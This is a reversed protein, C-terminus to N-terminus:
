RVVVEGERLGQTVVADVEDIPGLTVRRTTVGAATRVRVGAGSDDVHIADRPVVIANKVRELEVDIAATLDPLMRPNPTDITVVASFARVRASFSGALGVPSIQGLRGPMALDPYADLRVIVPMGPQLATLDTQNVRARVLVSAQNVVELVPAGPFMEDGEQIDAPGNGRWTLKPVVLGELPSTVTMSHANEVAHTMAAQARDRKIELIRLEAAAAQRKLDFGQKLSALKARAEELDQDNKEALIRSLMENKLVELEFNEVANKARAIEAEDKVRAADQEARKQAIQQVLDEYEAKKDLANKEQNQRDFEVLLDGPKVTAGAAALRTVVMSGQSAGALLPTTVVYSRTAETIGTLRLRRVFDGSKVRIDHSAAAPPEGGASSGGLGRAFAGALVVVLLIALALVVRRATSRRFVPLADDVTM